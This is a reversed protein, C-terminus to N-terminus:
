TYAKPEKTHRTPQIRHEHKSGQRDDSSEHARGVQEYKAGGTKPQHGQGPQDAVGGALDRMVQTRLVAPQEVRGEPVSDLQDDGQERQALSEEGQDLGRDRSADDAVRQQHKPQSQEGAAKPM